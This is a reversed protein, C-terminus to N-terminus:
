TTMFFHNFCPKCKFHGQVEFAVSGDAKLAEQSGRMSFTKKKLTFLVNGHNDVFDANHNITLKPFVIRVRYYAFLTKSKTDHLSFAKGKVSLVTYGNSDKVSCHLDHPARASLPLHAVMLKIASFHLVAKHVGSM